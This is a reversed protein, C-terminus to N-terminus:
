EPKGCLGQPIECRPLELWGDPFVISGVWYCEDSNAPDYTCSIASTGDNGGCRSACGLYM